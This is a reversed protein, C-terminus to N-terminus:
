PSSSSAAAPPTRGAPVGQYFSVFRPSFARTDPQFGSDIGKCHEVEALAQARLTQNTERSRVFLEHLAAARFLHFHLRLPVDAALDEGEALSTIVQQYEGAFFLRAGEELLPHVGRDRLTLPGFAGILLNLRDRADSALRAADAIGAVNDAKRAAEFRRRAQLAQRQAAEREALKDAPLVAPREAAFRDLTTVASDLLSFSEQARALADSVARGLADKEIRTLEDLVQRLRTSADQAFTRAATLMPASLTKTGENLRERAKGIAERGEQHAATLAPTFPVKRGEINRNLGEAAGIAEGIEQILSQASRHNDIAATLSADLTVLIARAREAAANADALERVTRTTRSSQYRARAAEIETTAREYLDRMAPDSRWIDLNAQGRTSISAALANVDNIQQSARSLAPELKAPPLVGKKECEIYGDQFTKIFDPRSHVATQQESQSWASVAGACDGVNFLAEGLFYHPLYEIGGAGVFRGVGTRVKTTSEQPRVRIAERMQTAVVPWRKDDRADIGRKFADDQASATATLLVFFALSTGGTVLAVRRRRLDVWSM